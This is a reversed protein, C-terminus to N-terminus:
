QGNSVKEIDDPNVELPYRKIRHFLLIKGAEMEQIEWERIRVSPWSGSKLRVSTGSAFPKPLPLISVM